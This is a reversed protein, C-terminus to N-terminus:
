HITVNAADRLEIGKRADGPSVGPASNTFTVGDAHRVFYGFAPMDGWLNPDPYQGAYEPPDPPVSTMGGKNTIRVNDFTVNQLRHTSGDPLTAGSIPSAWHYRMNQGMVSSFLIGDVTGVKHVDNAPTQGRDGLLIFVPSGVNQFTINRFVISSVDAGDVSEVAMAAKDAADITVTDFTVNTFSGYSATGLKLANAVVSKVVHCNKVTVDDVGRRVGSKFCISDDESSITSNQITVHHCDVVDMGDRNGSLLSDITVHDITLDDVEMNVLAWMAANRITVDQITIHDGVAAFFVMPRTYEPHVTSPGIWKPTNGNGDITGSGELRLNQVSEAYLLSKRCNRLQTNTTPPSISPYDADDQTGRLTATADIHLVLSSRLRLMGSSYTGDHLRVTGGRGACADIAAQLAATDKTTGDGKAGYQLPDCQPPRGGDLAPQTSADSAPPASGDGAAAPPMAGTAADPAGQGAGCAGTMLAIMTLLAKRTSLRLDRLMAVEQLITV